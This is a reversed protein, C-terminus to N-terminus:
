NSVQAPSEPVDLKKYAKGPLGPISTVIKLALTTGDVLVTVVFKLAHLALLVASLAAAVPVIVLLAIGIAAHKLLFKINGAYRIGHKQIAHGYKTFRELPKFNRLHEAGWGGSSKSRLSGGSSGGSSAGSTRGLSRVSDGSESLRQGASRGLNGNRKQLDVGDSSELYNNFINTWATNLRATVMADFEKETVTKKEKTLAHIRLSCEGNFKRILASRDNSFMQYVLTANEAGLTETMNQFSNRNTLQYQKSLENSFTVCFTNVATTLRTDSTVAVANLSTLLTLSLLFLM